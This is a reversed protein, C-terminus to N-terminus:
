YKDKLGHEVACDDCIEFTWIKVVKESSNCLDCRKVM